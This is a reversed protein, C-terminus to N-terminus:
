LSDQSTVELTKRLSHVRAQLQEQEAAAPNWDAQAQQLEEQLAKHQARKDQLEEKLQRNSQRLETM